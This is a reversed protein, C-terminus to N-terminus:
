KNKPVLKMEVPSNEYTIEPYLNIDIYYDTGYPEPVFYEDEGDIIKNPEATYICMSGDKDRALWFTHENKM